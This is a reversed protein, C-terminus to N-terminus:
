EDDNGEQGHEDELGKMLGVWRCPGGAPGPCVEGAVSPSLDRQPTATRVMDSRGRFGRVPWAASGSRRWGIAM